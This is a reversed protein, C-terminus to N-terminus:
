KGSPPSACIRRYKFWLYIGLGPICSALEMVFFWGFLAVGDDGGKKTLRYATGYAFFTQVIVAIYWIALLFGFLAEM